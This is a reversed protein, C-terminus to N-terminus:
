KRDDPCSEGGHKAPHRRFLQGNAVDLQLPPRKRGAATRVTYRLGSVNGGTTAIGSRGTQPLL